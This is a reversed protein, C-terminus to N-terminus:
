QKRCICVQRPSGSTFPQRPFEGYRAELHFGARDLLLLLEQPFIMRLRYDIVHFDPKGPSSFYWRISRTQNHSDYGATEEVSTEGRRPHQVKFLSQRLHPERALTKVDPNAIDMVLRGDAALHRRVCSLCQTLEEVTTLHLLSNGPILIASFEGPLDFNSMDGQVFEV